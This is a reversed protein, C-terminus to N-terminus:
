KSPHLDGSSIGDGSYSGDMIFGDQDRKFFVNMRSGSDTQDQAGFTSKGVWQFEGNLLIKITSKDIALIEVEQDPIRGRSTTVWNPEREVFYYSGSVFVKGNRVVLTLTGNGNVKVFRPVVNWIRILGSYKSEIRLQNEKAEASRAAFRVRELDEELWGKRKLGSMVKIAKNDDGDLVNLRKLQQGAKWGAEVNETEIAAMTRMVWINTYDPFREVFPESQTLFESMLSSRKAANDTSKDIDEIIDNLTQLLLKDEGKLRPANNQAQVATNPLPALRSRQQKLKDNDPNAKILEDLKIVAEQKKGAEILKAVQEWDADTVDAALPLASTLIAFAALLGTLTFHSIQM